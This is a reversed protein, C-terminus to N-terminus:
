QSKEVRNLAFLIEEPVILAESGCNPCIGDGGEFRLGCCNWCIYRAPAETFHLEAKEALTGRRAVDIAARITDLPVEPTPYITVHLASIAGAGTAQSEAMAAAIMARARELLDDTM